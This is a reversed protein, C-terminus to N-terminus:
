WPNVAHVPDGDELLRNGLLTRVEGASPKEAVTADAEPHRGQM